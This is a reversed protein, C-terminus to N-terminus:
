RIAFRIAIQTRDYEGVSEIGHNRTGVATLREASPEVPPNMGLKSIPHFTNRFDPLTKM